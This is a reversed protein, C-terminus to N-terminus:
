DETDGDIRQTMTNTNTSYRSLALKVATWPPACLTPVSPFTTLWPLSCCDRCPPVHSVYVTNYTCVYTSIFMCDTLIIYIYIYIYTYTICQISYTYINISHHGWVDFSSATWYTMYSDRKDILGILLLWFLSAATCCAAWLLKLPLVYCM